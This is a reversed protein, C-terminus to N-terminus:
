FMMPIENTYRFPILKSFRLTFRIKETYTKSDFGYTSKISNSIFVPFYVVFIDPIIRLEIGSEWRFTSPNAADEKSANKYTAINFFVGLPVPLPFASEINLATMWAGSSSPTYISFGGDSKIFQHQWINDPPMIGSRDPFAESYTYDNSTQNVSKGYKGSLHFNYEGANSNNYLFTGAFFRASFGTKRGKYNVGWSCDTWGKLYYPGSEAHIEVHFPIKRSHDQFIVTANVFLNMVSDRYLHSAYTSKIVGQWQRKPFAPNRKFIFNLGGEFKQWSSANETKVSHFRNYEAFLSFKQLNLFTPYFNYESYGMGTFDNSATGYMPMLRYQIKREPIIPNYLLIGSMIGDCTNWGVVPTYFLQTKDPNELIGLLKLNLPKTKKFLGQTRSTNNTRKLEFMLGDPDIVAKNFDPLNHVINNEGTFGDIWISGTLSDNQFFSINVPATLKGKNKVLINIKNSDVDPKLSKIKYDSPRTEKCIGKFFWDLNKGSCEEMTKQLDAPYPHKFKWKEFYEQMCNDYKEAGLYNKLYNMAQAGKMYSVIAYNEFLFAESHLDLAQDSGNRMIYDCALRNVDFPTITKKGLMKSLINVNGYYGNSKKQEVTYRQEYYSNIGEDMWPHERENSGLIGYFWNHGVEHVIVEELSAADGSLGINTIMPYEMGGGAGLASEVATCEAYPYDGIWKSYYYVGSDVYNIANKWLNGEINTFYVWTTVTRHSNPLEINGKAVYFRKDAFWAFDHISDQVFRLTKFTTSSPPFGINNKDFSKIRSTSEILNNLREKEENNQLIGTAAVTYNDPLTISVDFKGFESYFEGENLYPFAHWGFKDYVAPKPYWQTVQYSQKYRGLRSFAEGPIKVRFPTTIQIAKGPFLKEPLHLICIDITDKLYNWQISTGNIKFDLSDIFGYSTDNAEYFELQNSRMLQNALATSNNKYGNPWLHFYIYSLTDPSNNTYIITEFASLKHM